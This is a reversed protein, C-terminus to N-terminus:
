KRNGIWLAVTMAASVVLMGIALGYVFIGVTEWKLIENWALATILLAVSLLILYSAVFMVSEKNTM